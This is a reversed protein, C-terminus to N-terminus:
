RCHVIQPFQPTPVNVSCSFGDYSSQAVSPSRGGSEPAIVKRLTSRKASVETTWLFIDFLRARSLNDISKMFRALDESRLLCEQLFRDNTEATTGPPDSCAFGNWQELRQYSYSTFHDLCLFRMELLCVARQACGKTDCPIHGRRITAGTERREDSQQLSRQTM